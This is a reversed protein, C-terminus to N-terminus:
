ESSDGSKDSDDTERDSEADQGEEDTQEEPRYDKGAPETESQEKGQEEERDSEAHKSRYLSSLKNRVYKEIGEQTNIGQRNVAEDSFEAILAELDGERLNAEKIGSQIDRSLEAALRNYWTYSKAYERAMEALAKYTKAEPTGKLSEARSEYFDALLEGVRKEAGSVSLWPNAYPSVGYDHTLEHRVSDAKKAELADKDNKFRDLYKSDYYGKSLVIRSSGDSLHYLVAFAKGGTDEVGIQTVDAPELGLDNLSKAFAVMEERLEGREDYLMNLMDQRVNESMSLWNGLEVMPGKYRLDHAYKTIGLSDVPIEGSSVYCYAAKPVPVTGVASEPNRGQYEWGKFAMDEWIVATPDLKDMPQRYFVMLPKDTEQYEFNLKAVTM